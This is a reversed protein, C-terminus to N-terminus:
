GGALSVKPMLDGWRRKSLETLILSGNSSMTNFEKITM